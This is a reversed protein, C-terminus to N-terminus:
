TSIGEDAEQTSPDFTRAAVGLEPFQKIQQNQPPTVCVCTLLSDPTDYM